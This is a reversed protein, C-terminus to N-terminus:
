KRQAEIELVIEVEDGLIPLGTTIGFESRKITARASFGAVVLGPRLPHEAIKNLTAFLTVPRPIGRLTLTGYVRATREGLPEIRQSRFVIAPFTAVDFFDPGRLHDDRVAHRTDISAAQIVVFVISNEPTERDLVITGDIENFRGWTKSFGLHDIAFTVDAHAPDVKFSESSQANAAGLGACLLLVALLTHMLADRPAAWGIRPAM